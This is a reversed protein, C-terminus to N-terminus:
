GSIRLPGYGDVSGGRSLHCHQAGVLVYTDGYPATYTIVSYSLFSTM